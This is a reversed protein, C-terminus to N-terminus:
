LRHTMAVARPAPYASLRSAPNASSRAQRAATPAAREERSDATTGRSASKGAACAATPKAMVANTTMWM